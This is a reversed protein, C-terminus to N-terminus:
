FSQSADFKLILLTSLTYGHKEIKKTVICLLICVKGQSRVCLHVHTCVYAGTVFSECAPVLGKLTRHERIGQRECTLSQLEQYEIVILLLQYVGYSEWMSRPMGSVMVDKCIVNDIMIPLFPLFGM